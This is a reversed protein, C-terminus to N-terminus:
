LVLALLNLARPVCDCAAAAFSLSLAQQSLIVLSMPSLCGSVEMIARFVIEKRVNDLRPDKMMALHRKRSKGTLLVRSCTKCICQLVNLTARFYGIHFVPLTLPIYGFHGSCDALRRNCTGCLDKANSIGLRPDICGNVAPKRTTL